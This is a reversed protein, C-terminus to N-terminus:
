KKKKPGPLKTVSTNENKKKPLPTTFSANGSSIPRRNIDDWPGPKNKSPKKPAM